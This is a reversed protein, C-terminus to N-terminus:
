VPEADPGEILRIEDALPKITADTVEGGVAGIQGQLQTGFGKKVGLRFRESVIILLMMAVPKLVPETSPSNSLMSASRRRRAPMPTSVTSSPRVVSSRIAPPRMM